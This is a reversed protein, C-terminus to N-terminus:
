AWAYLDDERSQGEPYLCPAALKSQVSTHSCGMDIIAELREGGVWSNVMPCLRPGGSAGRGMSCDMSEIGTPDALGTLRSLEVFPLHMTQTPARSVYVCDRSM